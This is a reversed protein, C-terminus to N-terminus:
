SDALQEMEKRIVGILSRDDSVLTVDVGERGTESKSIIEVTQNFFNWVSSFHNNNSKIFQELRNKRGELVVKSVTFSVQHEGGGGDGKLLGDGGLSRFFQEKDSEVVRHGVGAGSMRLMDLVTVKDTVLPLSPLLGGGLLHGRFVLHSRVSLPLDEPALAPLPLHCSVTDQGSFSSPLPVTKSQRCKESPLSIDLKLCWFKGLLKLDSVNKFNLKLSKQDSFMDVAEVCLETLFLKASDALLLQQFIRLQQLHEEKEATAQGLTGITKSEEVIRELIDGKKRVKLGRRQRGVVEEEQRMNVSYVVSDMTVATLVEGVLTLLKVSSFLPKSMFQGSQSDMKWVEGGKTLIALMDKGVVLDKVSSFLLRCSIEGSDDKHLVSALSTLSSIHLHPAAQSIFQTLFQGRTHCDLQKHCSTKGDTIVATKGATVVYLQAATTHLLQGPLVWHSPLSCVWIPHGSQPHPCNYVEKVSWNVTCVTVVVLRDLVQNDQVVVLSTMDGALYSAVAPHEFSVLLEPQSQSVEMIDMANDTDKDMTPIPVAQVGQASLIHLTDAVVWAMQMPHSTTLDVQRSASM